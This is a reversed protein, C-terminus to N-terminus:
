AAEYIIQGSITDSAAWTWPAANTVNSLATVYYTPPQYALLFTTATSIYPYAFGASATSADRLLIWGLENQTFAQSTTKATIPMSIIYNGSGATAGTGFTFSFNAVVLKNIQTYKGSVVSGSGLTPNTTSATLVPTYTEWAAGISNMTAATLIQGATLGATYQTAM